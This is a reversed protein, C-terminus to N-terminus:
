AARGSSAGCTRLMVVDSLARALTTTAPHGDLYEFFATMSMDGDIVERPHELQAQQM